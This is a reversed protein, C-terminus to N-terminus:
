DYIIRVVLGRFSETKKKFFFQEWKLGGQPNFYDEKWKSM